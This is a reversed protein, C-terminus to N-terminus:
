YAPALTATLLSTLTVDTGQFQIAASSGPSISFFQQTTLNKSYDLGNLLISRTRPNCDIVLVDGPSLTGTYFLMQGTVGNVIIPNVLTGTTPGNITFKPWAKHVGPNALTVLGNSGGAGWFLGGAGANTWDVGHTTPGVWDLGNGSVPLTTSASVAPGYLFPDAASMMLQFDWTLAGPTIKPADALEVMATLTLGDIDVITLASQGGGTLLGTFTRRSACAGAISTAAGWGIISMAKPPRFNESRFAGDENPFNTQNLTVGPGDWIGSTGNTHVGWATGNVDPVSFGSDGCKWTGIAYTPAGPATM